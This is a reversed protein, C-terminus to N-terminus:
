KMEGDILKWECKDCIYFDIDTASFVKKKHCVLCTLAVYNLKNVVKANRKPKEFRATEEEAPEEENYIAQVAQALLFDQDETAPSFIANKAQEQAIPETTEVEVNEAVSLDNAQFVAANLPSATHNVHVDNEPSSFIGEVGVVLENAIQLNNDNMEDILPQQPAQVHMAEANNPPLFNSENDDWVEIESEIQINNGDIEDILPQQPAQVHMAEAYMPPLFINVEGIEIENAIQLNDDDIQPQEPAPDNMAEAVIPPPM